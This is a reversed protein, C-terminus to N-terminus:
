EMGKLVPLSGLRDAAFLLQKELLRNPSVSPSVFSLIAHPKSNNEWCMYKYVTFPGHTAGKNLILCM